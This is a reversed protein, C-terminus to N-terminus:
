LSKEKECISDSGFLSVEIGDVNFNEVRSSQSFSSAFLFVTVLVNDLFRFSVKTRVVTEDPMVM